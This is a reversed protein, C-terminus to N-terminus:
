DDRGGLKEDLLGCIRDVIEGVSLSEGNDSSQFLSLDDPLEVGIEKEILITTELCRLSDFDSLEDMPRTQVTVDQKPSGSLSQLDTIAKVVIRTVESKKM